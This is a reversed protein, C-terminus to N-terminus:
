QSPRTEQPYVVSDLGLAPTMASQIKEPGEQMRRCSVSCGFKVRYGCQTIPFKEPTNLVGAPGLSRPTLPWLKQM